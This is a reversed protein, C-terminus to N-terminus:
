ETKTIRRKYVLAVLTALTILLPAWVFSPFEPIVGNADTKVLLSNFGIGGAIAYGGDSTQIVSNADANPGYKMNWQVNGSSDTKVLWVHADGFTFNESVGAIAYGGDSTQIVSNAFDETTVGGYTKSWQVNGSSDTKILLFADHSSANGQNSGTDGAMAYGGDSTQIVSNAKEDQTSGFTQSWTTNGLSDSKAYTVETGDGGALVYGGDSTKALSYADGLEPGVTQNWQANGSSDVKVLLFEEGEMSSSMAYGGDDTKVVSYAAVDITEYTKNWQVNGSSDTKLLLAGGNESGAIAYGGDSTQIGSYAEDSNADSYTKNWQMNGSSDTKIICFHDLAGVTLNATYGLLTYGGDSTQVVTRTYFGTGTQGYTKTWGAAAYSSTCLSLTFVSLLVICLVLRTKSKM